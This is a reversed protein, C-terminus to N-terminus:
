ERILATRLTYPQIHSGTWTNRRGKNNNSKGRTNERVTSQTSGGESGM